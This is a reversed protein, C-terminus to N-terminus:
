SYVSVNSKESRKALTGQMMVATSICELCKKGTFDM